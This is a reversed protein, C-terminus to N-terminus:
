VTEIKDEAVVISELGGDYDRPRIIHYVWADGRRTEYGAIMGPVKRGFNSGVMVIDRLKYKPESAPILKSCEKVFAAPEIDDYILKPIKLM